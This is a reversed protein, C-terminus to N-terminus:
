VQILLGRSLQGRVKVDVLDNADPATGTKFVWSRLAATWLCRVMLDVVSCLLMITAPKCICLLSIWDLHCGAAPRVAVQGDRLVRM